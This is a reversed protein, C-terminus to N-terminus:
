ACKNCKWQREPPSNNLNQCEYHFWTKCKACLVMNKGFHEPMRCICYVEVKWKTRIKMASTSENMKPFPTLKGNLLCSQLHPRLESIIFKHYKLEKTYLFEVAFAIALPGCDNIGEEQTQTACINVFFEKEGCFMIKALQQEVFSSM